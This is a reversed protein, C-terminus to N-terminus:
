ATAFYHFNWCHGRHWEKEIVCIVASVENEGIKLHMFFFVYPDSFYFPFAM